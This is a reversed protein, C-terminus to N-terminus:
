LWLDFADDRAHRYSIASLRYRRPRFIAHIQDHPALFRETQRPSKFRAMIKEKRRTPRHPGGIRNNLGKHARHDTGSVLQAIPKSYSHLKDAVVGRQSRAILRGLFLKAANACRHPQALIDLVDGSADIVPWLWHKEGNIAAVVEDLHWQGHPRPRERRICTAFHAGFRNVWLRITERSVIVGREAFLEEM